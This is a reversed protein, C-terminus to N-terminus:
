HAGRGVEFSGTDEKVKEDEELDEVDAEVDEM